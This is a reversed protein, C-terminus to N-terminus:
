FAEQQACIRRFFGERAILEQHSGSQTMRGGELVVIRGCARATIVRQTITISTRGRLVQSLTARILEETASDLASTTDDLLLVAPETLLATALALRQKQGGSLTVGGEGVEAEYKLPLSMIFEHLEVQRAAMMVQTPSADLRGYVITEAITGSFVVPEQQVMCVQRRVSAPDAERLDVGGVRVAGEQPDYFRMLLQFVTSKGSGSPGMLALHHGPSVSFSVDKLAPESQGPYTFTVHDFIIRGKVGDLKVSGPPMREEEDLLAFVRGVVVFAAQLQTVLSTLVNVPQLVGALAPIFVILDVLRMAGSQVRLAGFYLIGGTAGAAITGALLSLGHSYLVARMGVRTQDHVLGAFDAVERKERGFAKVLRIGAIREGSLAYMRTNLRRVARVARRIRPRLVYFAWAYLPLTAAVALAMRWNLYFLVGLGIVISVLSELLGVASSTVWQRIVNVDDLVRALITGTPTREYFGIHLRQLKEQLRKRLAFVLRRGVGLVLRRASWDAVLWVTWIGMNIAFFVAVLNVRRPLEAPDFGTEIGVIDAALFRLTLVFSFPLAGSIATLLFALSLRGRYNRLHDSWLRRLAGRSADGLDKRDALIRDIIGKVRPGPRKRGAGGPDSQSTGPQKM